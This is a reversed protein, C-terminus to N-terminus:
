ERFMSQSLVVTHFSKRHTKSALSRAGAEGVLVALGSALAEGNLVLICHIVTRALSPLIISANMKGLAASSPYMTASIKPM